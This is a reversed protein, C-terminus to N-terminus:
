WGRQPLFPEDRIAATLKGSIDHSWKRQWPKAPRGTAIAHGLKRLKRSHARLGARELAQIEAQYQTFFEDTFIPDICENTLIEISALVEHIPKHAIMLSCAAVLELNPLTCDGPNFGGQAFRNVIESRRDLKLTWYRKLKALYRSERSM